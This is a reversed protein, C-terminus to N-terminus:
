IGWNLNEDSNFRFVCQLIKYVRESLEKSVGIEKTYHLKTYWNMINFSICLQCTFVKKVNKVTSNVGLATISFLRFFM